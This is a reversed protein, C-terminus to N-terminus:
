SKKRTKKKKKIYVRKTNHLSQNKEHFLIYLSNLSSFLTITNKWHIDCISKELILPPIKIKNNLFFPINEPELYFNYKLISLPQYQKNNLKRNKILLYILKGKDLCGKDLQINDKKIHFLENIRNVYLFYVKVHTVVDKYFDNFFQENVYFDNTWDCNLEM